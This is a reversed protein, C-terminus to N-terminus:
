RCLRWAGVALSTVTLALGVWRWLRWSRLLGPDAKVDLNRKVDDRPDPV